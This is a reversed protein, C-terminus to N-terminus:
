SSGVRNNAPHRPAFELSQLMRFAHAIEDVSPSPETTTLAILYLSNNNRSLRAWAHMARSAFKSTTTYQGISYAYYVHSLDNTEQTAWTVHWLTLCDTRVCSVRKQASQELWVKGNSPALQSEDIKAEPGSAVFIRVGLERDDRTYTLSLQETGSRPSSSGTAATSVLVWEHLSKPVSASDVAPASYKETATLWLTSGSVTLIVIGALVPAFLLPAGIRDQAALGITAPPPEAKLRSLAYLLLGFTLVLSVWQWNKHDSLSMQSTNIGDISVIAIVRLLNTLIGLFAGFLIMALIKLPSRFILLGFSYGLFIALNFYPLGACEPLVNYNNEGISLAYGEVAHPLQVIVAFLEIAHVTILRLPPLLLDGNPVMLFLLGLTPFLTRYEKRGLTSLAIGHFALILAFQRVVDINMLTAASWSCAAVFAVPVGAFDPRLRITAGNAAREWLLYSIMPIVFWSHQYASSSAWFDILGFLTPWFILSAVALGTLGCLAINKQEQNIM